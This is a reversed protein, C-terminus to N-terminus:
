MLSEVFLSPHHGHIRLPLLCSFFYASRFYSASYTPYKKAGAQVCVGGGGCM